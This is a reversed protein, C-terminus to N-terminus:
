FRAPDGTTAASRAKPAARAPARSSSSTSGVLPSLSACASRPKAGLRERPRANPESQRPRMLDSSGSTRVGARSMSGVVRIQGPAIPDALTPGPACFMLILLVERRRV